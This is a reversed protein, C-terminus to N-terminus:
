VKLMKLIAIYNMANQLTRDIGQQTINGSIYAHFANTWTKGVYIYFVM